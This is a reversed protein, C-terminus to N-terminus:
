GGALMRIDSFILFVTLAMLLAFGIFHVMGEKEPALPKRRIAEIILFVLRGGDLAPIPLLNMIGLSLSLLMAIQLVTEINTQVATSVTAVIAVVGGVEGQEVNGTVLRGLTSFTQRVVEWSYSFTGKVADVFGLQERVYYTGITIGLLNKGSEEDYIDDILLTHETEGRLVTFEVSNEASDIISIVQEHDTVPAGDVAILIDGSELGAIDAPANEVVEPIQVETQDIYVGYAMLIVVGLVLASVINFIPGAIVVLVRKWVPHDNFGHGDESVEDEGSFRCMGGIPFARLSYVIGNKERYFVKPGMGVSFELIGFGLKRGAIFHGYEHITIFIGLLLLAAIISVANTFISEM